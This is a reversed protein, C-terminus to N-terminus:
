EKNFTISNETKGEKLDEDELYKGSLVFQITWGVMLGFSVLTVLFVLLEIIVQNM